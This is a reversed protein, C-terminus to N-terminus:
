DVIGDKLAERSWVPLPMSNGTKPNHMLRYSSSISNQEMMVQWGRVYYPCDDNFCVLKIMGGWTSESPTQWRKLEAGCEPCLDVTKENPQDAM